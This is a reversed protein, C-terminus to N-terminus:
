QWASVAFSTISVNKNLRYIKLLIYCKGEGFMRIDRIKDPWREAQERVIRNRVTEPQFAGRASEERCSGAFFRGPRKGGSLKRCGIARAAKKGSLKRCLIARAAKRGVVEPLWDGPSSEEGVVEPLSDAPSIEKGVVEPL